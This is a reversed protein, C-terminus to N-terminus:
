NTDSTCLLWRWCYSMAAWYTSAFLGLSCSIATCTSTCASNSGATPSPWARLWINRSSASSAFDPYSPLNISLLKQNSWELTQVIKIRKKTKTLWWSCYSAFTRRPSFVIVLCAAALPLGTNKMIAIKCEDSCSRSSPCRGSSKLCKAQFCSDSHSASSAVEAIRDTRGRAIELTYRRLFLSSRYSDALSWHWSHDIGSWLHSASECQWRYASTSWASPSHCCISCEQCWPLPRSAGSEPLSLFHFSSASDVLSRTELWAARAAGAASSTKHLWVWYPLWPM